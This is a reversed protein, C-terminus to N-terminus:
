NNVRGAWNFLPTRFFYLIFLVLISMCAGTLIAMWINPAYKIKFLLHSTIFYCFGLFLMYPLVVMSVIGAMFVSGLMVNNTEPAAGNLINNNSQESMENFWVLYEESVHFTADTIQWLLILVFPYVLANIILFKKESDRGWMVKTPKLFLRILFWISPYGTLCLLIYTCLYKGIENM